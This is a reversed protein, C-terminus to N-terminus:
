REMGYRSHTWIHNANEVAGQISIAPYYEVLPDMYSISFFGYPGESVNNYGQIVLLHAAVLGGSDMMASASTKWQWRMFIPRGSNIESIIESQTMSSARVNGANSIGGGYLARAVDELTGGENACDSSGKGWKAYQCQSADSGGFFMSVSRSGAAWCWNSQEQMVRPIMLYKYPPAAYAISVGSFIVFISVTLMCLSSVIKKRM